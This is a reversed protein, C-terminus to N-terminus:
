MQELWSRLQGAFGQNEQALSQYLKSLCPDTASQAASLLEAALQQEAQFRERLALALALETKGSGPPGLILLNKRQLFPPERNRSM